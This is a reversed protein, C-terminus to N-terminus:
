IPSGSIYGVILSIIFGVFGILLIGIIVVKATRNFEDQTPKYSTHLIHKSNDIFAGINPIKVMDAGDRNRYIIDM